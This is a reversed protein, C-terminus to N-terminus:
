DDIMAWFLPDAFVDPDPEEEEEFLLDEPYWGDDQEDEEFAEEELWEFGRYGNQYSPRM